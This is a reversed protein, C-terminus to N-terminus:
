TVDPSTIFDVFLVEGGTRAAAAQLPLDASGGAAVCDIVPSHQRRGVGALPSGLAM